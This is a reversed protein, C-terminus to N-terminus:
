YGLVLKFQESGDANRQVATRNELYIMYGSYPIFSPTQVQLGVRTTLTTKGILLANEVPTGNTNILKVTNFTSDFSLVTATFYANEILGDPSQYITEDPSYNGFGPSVVFDTTTKYIQANAQGYTTGFYAFPNSLIGIQRYDIDTPLNGSEDRDFTATIMIHRAGLESIPNFGHGGVPSVYTVAQAGSGQASSISVNAYTYNYGTNAITIDTVVGGSIVANAYAGTGDGTVTITVPATAQNYNSGGNTVIITEIGGYTKTSEVPNPTTNGLPIPIWADDMFKMKIGSSITYMYKWKYDDAGQFIQNANFTGPEFLPEVTSPEGDNNWLCKFVQDYRNKIYFRRAITGNPELAFMNVDDRYYDYVDGTKWDIREIVPSMDNTSIQKAVFMNKFVQKIYKQSQEPVPPVDEDVWPDVKSLFCYLAGLKKGTTPVVVTPSYYTTTLQYVGDNYTLIGTNASM